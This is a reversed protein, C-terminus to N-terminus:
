NQLELKLADSLAARLSLTMSCGFTAIMLISLFSIQLFCLAIGLNLGWFSFSLAAIRAFPLVLKRNIIITPADWGLVAGLLPLCPFDYRWLQTIVAALLSITAIALLGVNMLTLSLLYLIVVPYWSKSASFTQSFYRGIITGSIAFFHKFSLLGHLTQARVGCAVLFGLVWTLILPLLVTKLAVSLM